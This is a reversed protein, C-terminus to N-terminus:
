TTPSVHLSDAIAKVTPLGTGNHNGFHRELLDDPMRINWEEISLPDAHDNGARYLGVNHVPTEPRNRINADKCWYIM